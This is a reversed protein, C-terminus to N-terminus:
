GVIQNLTNVARIREPKESILLRLGEQSLLFSFHSVM